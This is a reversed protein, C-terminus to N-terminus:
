IDLFHRVISKCSPYYLHPFGCLMTNSMIMCPYEKKGVPKLATLATGNESCDFYHFEHAKISENKKFWPTDETTKLEIYGFRVLKNKMSCSGNLVGCMRHSRGDATIIEKQLYMFGGCEALVHIGSHVADHIQRLMSTNAALKSAYLEPYGGGLILGTIGDPLKKDHLPSFFRIDAGYEKLLKINDEYYFCFAEDKAIAIVPKGSVFIGSTEKFEPSETQKILPASSKCIKLIDNLDCKELLLRAAYEYKKRIDSIESPLKLGLHRSEVRLEKDEPLFGAVTLGTEEKILPSIIEYYSPSIRNLFVGAILGAHDESLMGKILAILTRGMGKADIVLLINTGTKVALDYASAEPRTGGLGDYLGMVGEILMISDEKTCEETIIRKLDNEDSFFSDLNRSPIGLVERHFMPDIYDPGCKGAHVDFGANKLALMLACSVSTKGSGSKPAALILRHAPISTKDMNINM